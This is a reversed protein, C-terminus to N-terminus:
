KPFRASVREYPYKQVTPILGKLMIYEEAGKASREYAADLKAGDKTVTKPGYYIYVKRAKGDEDLQVGLQAIGFPLAMWHTYVRYHPDYWPVKGFKHAEELQFYEEADRITCNIDSDSFMVQYTSPAIEYQGDLLNMTGAVTPSNFQIGMGKGDLDVYSVPHSHAVFFLNKSERYVSETDGLTLNASFGFDEYAITFGIESDFGAEALLRWIKMAREGNLTQRHRYNGFYTRLVVFKEFETANALFLIFGEKLNDIADRLKSQATRYDMNSIDEGLCKSVVSLVANIEVDCPYGMIPFGAHNNMLQRAYRYLGEKEKRDIYEGTFKNYHTDTLSMQAPAIRYGAQIVMDMIAMLKERIGHAKTVLTVSYGREMVMYILQNIYSPKFEFAGDRIKGLSVVYAYLDDRAKKIATYIPMHDRASVFAYRYEPRDDFFTLDLEEFIDRATQRVLFAAPLEQVGRGQGNRLGHVVSGVPKIQDDWNTAFNNAAVAEILDTPVKSARVKDYIRQSAVASLYRKQVLSLKALDPERVNVDWPVNEHIMKIERELLEVFLEQIRFINPIMVLLDEKGLMVMQIRSALQEAVTGKEKALRAAVDKVSKGRKLVDMILHITDRKAHRINQAFPIEGEFIVHDGNYSIQDGPRIELRDKPGVVRGSVMITTGRTATEKIPQYEPVIFFKGNKRLVSAPINITGEPSFIVCDNPGPERIRRNHDYLKVSEGEKLGSLDMQNLAEFDFNPKILRPLAPRDDLEPRPKGKVRYVNLLFGFTLEDGDYLPYEEGAVLRNQNLYTGNGSHTDKIYLSGDERKILDAHKRSVNDQRIAGFGLKLAKDGKRDVRGLEIRGDKWGLSTIPPAGIQPDLVDNITHGLDVRGRDFSNPGKPDAFFEHAKSGPVWLIHEVGNFYIHNLGPTLCCNEGFNVIIEAASTEVTLPMNDIRHVFYRPGQVYFRIDGPTGPVKVEGHGGICFKGYKAILPNLEFFVINGCNFSLFYPDHTATAGAEKLKGDPHFGHRFIFQLVDRESVDTRGKEHLCDFHHLLAQVSREFLDPTLTQISVNGQHLQERILQQLALWPDSPPKEQFITGKYNEKVSFGSLRLMTRTTARRLFQPVISDVISGAALAVFAEPSSASMSAGTSAFLMATEAARYGSEAALEGLGSQAAFASADDILGKLGTKASTAFCSPSLQSTLTTFM